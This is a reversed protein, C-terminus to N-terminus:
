FLTYWDLLNDPCNLPDIELCFRNNLREGDRLPQWIFLWRCLGPKVRTGELQQRMANPMTRSGHPGQQEWGKNMAVLGRPAQEKSRRVLKMGTNAPFILVYLVDVTKWPEQVVPM